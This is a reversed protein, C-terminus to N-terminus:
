DGSRTWGQADWGPTGELLRVSAEPGRERESTSRSRLFLTYALWEADLLNRNIAIFDVDLFRVGLM